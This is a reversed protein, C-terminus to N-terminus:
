TLGRVSRQYMQKLGSLALENEKAITADIQLHRCAVQYYLALPSDGIIVIPYSQYFSRMMALETGLLLGSLYQTSAQETGHLLLDAARITFLQALLLDPKDAGDCVGRLFGETNLVQEDSMMKLAVTHKLVSHQGLLHFMEGTMVTKFSKVAGKQLHVWKNHTGPLCLVGVFDSHGSLFGLIQMEEGRMVDPPSSQSLGAFIRVKLRKDETPVCTSTPLLASDKALGQYPVELWGQRAGAMGCILVDYTADADLLDDILGLLIPEYQHRGIKAMGDASHRSAMVQHDANLLWVRVNSTGWDVAVWAVSSM